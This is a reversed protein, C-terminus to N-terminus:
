LLKRLAALPADLASPDRQRRIAVSWLAAVVQWFRIPGPDAAAVELYADCFARWHSRSMPWRSYSRGLDFGAPELRFWENDFVRLSGAEDILMNDGCFDLHALVPAPTRADFGSLEGRLEAIAPPELIRDRALRELELRALELWAFDPAPLEIRPASAHLRALLGGAEEVRRTPAAPGLAGLERGPVWEEILVRERQALARTFAKDLGGRVGLLDRAVRESELRRAKLIRGDELRVRYASRGRKRDQQPSVLAIEAPRLGERALAEWM